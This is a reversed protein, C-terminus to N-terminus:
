KCTRTFSETHGHKWIYGKYTKYSKHKPNCCRCIVTGDIGLVRGAETASKWERVLEGETTLQLVVKCRESDHMKRHEEDSMWVLNEVRNDCKNHNIHHVVGYNNPNPIFHQAVLYHITFPQMENNKWLEYVLYGSRTKHPNRILEKKHCIYEKGRNTKIFNRGLSKVRGENSVQYIGEYGQIDKWIEM